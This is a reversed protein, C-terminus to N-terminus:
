HPQDVSRASIVLAGGAVIALALGTLLGNGAGNSRDFLVVLVWIGVTVSAGFMTRRLWQALTAMPVKGGTPFTAALANVAHYVLLCFSAV